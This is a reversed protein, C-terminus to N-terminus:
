VACTDTAVVWGITGASDQGLVKVPATITGLKVHLDLRKGWTTDSVTTWSVRLDNSDVAASDARYIKDVLSGPVDSRDVTVLKDRAVPSDVPLDSSGDVLIIWGRGGSATNKIVRCGAGQITNLINGIKNMNGANAVKRLPDGSKNAADLFNVIM